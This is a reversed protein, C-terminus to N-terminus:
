WSKEFDTKEVLHERTRFLTQQQPKRLIYNGGAKKRFLLAYPTILFFYILFLLVGTNITGLARSFLLWSQLLAKRFPKLLLGAFLVAVPVVYWVPLMQFFFLLLAMFAACAFLNIYEDRRSLSTAPLNIMFALTANKECRNMIARNALGLISFLYVAGPRQQQGVGPAAHHSTACCASSSAVM